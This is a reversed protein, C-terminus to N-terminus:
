QSYARIAGMMYVLPANWNITVENSAYSCWDDVYSLADKSSPYSCSGADEQGRNPGGVVFGPVPEAVSDAESPRHHPHMASRDGLGTVFSIDVANRGLIYDLNGLAADLYKQEGKIKYGYILVIAQNLAGGNSGWAFDSYDPYVKMSVGYASEQQAELSYEASGALVDVVTQYDEASLKGQGHDYLSLYALMGVNQWSPTWKNSEISKFENLYESKGTLLFLEAAAWSFEDNVNSDDYAGTKIDGPQVYLVSPNAKAWAWAAEAAAKYESSKNPFQASFDELVRSAVSMVAAFNLAASTTKTVVYRQATAQEPMVVGSFNKTTLKHYVGGDDDQMKEMWELNWMVEDLIDPVANSSEPINVSMNDYISSFQEYAALLTYTSIGSNVIYKNYDGADYWGKPAYISTGTPRTNSAASDHVLVNDDPHGLARQWKGAYQQELATSARNFYYAKLAAKHAEDFVATDIDFSVSQSLGPVILKYAGPTNFASFNAQKVSEGSPEWTSAASLDGCYVVQNDSASVIGFESASVEPVIAVKNSIPM